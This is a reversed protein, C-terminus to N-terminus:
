IKLHSIYYNPVSKSFVEHAYSTSIVDHAQQSNPEGRPRGINLVNGGGGGGGLIRFRGVGIRLSSEIPCPFLILSSFLLCFFFQFSLILFHVSIPKAQEVLFASSLVRHLLIATFDDTTRWRCLLTIPYVLSFLNM